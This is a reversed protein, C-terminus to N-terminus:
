QYSHKGTLIVRSRKEIQMRNSQGKAVGYFRGEKKNASKVNPKSSKATLATGVIALMLVCVIRPTQAPWPMSVVLSRKSACTARLIPSCGRLEAAADNVNTIGGAATHCNL